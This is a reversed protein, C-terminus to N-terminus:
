RCCLGAYMLAEEMRAGTYADTHCGNSCYPKYPDPLAVVFEVLDLGPTNMQMMEGLSEEMKKVPDDKEPEANQGTIEGQTNTNELSNDM